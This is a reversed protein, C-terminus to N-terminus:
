SRLYLCPAAPFGATGQGARGRFPFGIFSKPLRVNKPLLDQTDDFLPSKVTTPTKDSATYKEPQPATEDDDPPVDPVVVGGPVVPAPLVRVDPLKAKRTPSFIRLFM